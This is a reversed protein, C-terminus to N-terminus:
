WVYLSADEQAAFLDNGDPAPRLLLPLYTGALTSVWASPSSSTAAAQRRVVFLIALLTEFLGILLVSARPRDQFSHVHTLAFGGYLAALAVNTFATWLGASTVRDSM